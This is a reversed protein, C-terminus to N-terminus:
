RRRRQACEQAAGAWARRPRPSSSHWRAATACARRGRRMTPEPPALEDAEGPAPDVEEVPREGHDLLEDLGVCFDGRFAASIGTQQLTGLQRHLGAGLV